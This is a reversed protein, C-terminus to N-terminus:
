EYVAGCWLLDAFQDWTLCNVPVVPSDASAGDEPPILVIVEDETYGGLSGRVGCELYSCPDFNYWRFGTPSDIGFYRYENELTGAEAMRRLDAIQFLICQEWATRGIYDSGEDDSQISRWADDFPPVEATFADRFWEALKGTPIIDDPWNQALAWLARLYEELSRTPTRPGDPFLDRVFTYLDRNTQMVSRPFAQSATHGGFSLSLRTRAIAALSVSWAPQAREAARTQESGICAGTRGGAILIM